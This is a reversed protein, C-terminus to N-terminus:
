VVGRETTTIDGTEGMAQDATVRDAMAREGIGTARDGITTVIIVHIRIASTIRCRIGACTM